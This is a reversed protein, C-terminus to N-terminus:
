LVTEVLIVQTVFTEKEVILIELVDSVYPHLILIVHQELGAYPEQLIAAFHVDAEVVATIKVYAQLLAVVEAYILDMAFTEREVILIQLVDSVNPRPILLACQELGAHHEPLTPILVADVM